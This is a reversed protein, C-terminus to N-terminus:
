LADVARLHEVYIAAMPMFGIFAGIGADSYRDRSVVKWRMEMRWKLTSETKRELNEEEAEIEKRRRRQGGGEERWQVSLTYNVTM